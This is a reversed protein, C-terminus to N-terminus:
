PEDMKIRSMGGNDCGNKTDQDMSWLWGRGARKKPSRKGSAKAGPPEGSKERQQKGTICLGVLPRTGNSTMRRCDVVEARKMM